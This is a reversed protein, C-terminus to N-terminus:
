GNSDGKGSKLKSMKVKRGLGFVMKLVMFAINVVLLSVLLGAFTLSSFGPVVISQLFNWSSVLYFAAVDLFGM